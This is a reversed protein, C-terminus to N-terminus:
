YSGAKVSFTNCNVACYGLVSYTKKKYEKKNNNTSYQLLYILHLGVVIGLVTLTLCKCFNFLDLYRATIYRLFVSLM